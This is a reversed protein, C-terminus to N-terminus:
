WRGPFVPNPGVLNGQADYKAYPWRYTTPAPPIAPGASRAQASLPASRRAPRCRLAPDASNQSCRAALAGDRNGAPSQALAPAAVVLMGATVAVLTRMPVGGIQVIGQRM